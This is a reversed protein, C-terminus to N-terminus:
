YGAVVVAKGTLGVLEIVEKDKNFGSWAKGNVTASKIPTKRPHRLRVLV